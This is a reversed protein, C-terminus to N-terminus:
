NNHSVIEEERIIFYNSFCGVSIQGKQRCEQAFFISIGKPWFYEVCLSLSKSSSFEMFEKGVKKHEGKKKNNKEVKITSTM